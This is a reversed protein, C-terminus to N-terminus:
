LICKHKYTNAHIYAFILCICICICVYLSSGAQWNSVSFMDLNVSHPNLCTLWRYEQLKAMLNTTHHITYDAIMQDRIKGKNYLLRSSSNKEKAEWFRCVTRQMAKGAKSLIMVKSSTKKTVKDTMTSVSQHLICRYNMFKIDCM